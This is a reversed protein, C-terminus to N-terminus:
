YGYKREKWIYKGIRSSIIIYFIYFPYLIELFPALWLLKKSNFFGLFPYLFIVDTVLKGAFLLLFFAWSAADTICLLLSLLLSFNAFTVILGVAIIDPDTYHSSKSFWRKRQNIFETLSASPVTYVLSEPSKLFKIKYRNKKKLYQLLFIDDGSPSDSSLAVTDSPYESKMFALNAGNCMIPRELNATAAGSAILSAFELAQIKQFLSSNTGYAVPSIILDANTQMRFSVITSLWESHMQCDADTTLILEGLALNIAIRLGTKKGEIGAPLSYYRANKCTEIFVQMIKLTTDTSHDDILIIEFKEVPYEQNKLCNLLIPLYSEENRCCIVISTFPKTDSPKPIFPKQRIWGIFFLSILLIYVLIGALAFFELITTLM